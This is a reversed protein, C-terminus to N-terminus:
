ISRKRINEDLWEFFFNLSAFHLLNEAEYDKEFICTALHDIAIIYDGKQLVYRKRQDLCIKRLSLKTKMVTTDLHIGPLSKKKEKSIIFCDEKSCYVSLIQNHTM